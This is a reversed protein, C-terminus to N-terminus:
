IRREEAVHARPTLITVTPPPQSFVQGFGSREVVNSPRTHRSCHLLWSHFNSLPRRNM